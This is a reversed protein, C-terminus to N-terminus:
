SENRENPINTKLHQKVLKALAAGTGLVDKMHKECFGHLETQFLGHGSGIAPANCSICKELDSM